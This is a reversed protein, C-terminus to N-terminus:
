ARTNLLHEQIIGQNNCINYKNILLVYDIYRSFLFIFVELAKFTEKFYLASYFYCMEVSSSQVAIILFHSDFIQCQRDNTRETIYTVVYLCTHMTTDGLKQSYLFVALLLCIHWLELWPFTFLVKLHYNEQKVM